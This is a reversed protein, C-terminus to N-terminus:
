PTKSPSNATLKELSAELSFRIFMLIDNSQEEKRARELVQQMTALLPRRGPASCSSRGPPMSHSKLSAARSRRLWCPCHKRPKARTLWRPRPKSGCWQAPTRCTPERLALRADEPLQRAANCGVAAWYRVGDDTDSLLKVQEEGADERGVLNAADLLRALPYRKEDRALEFPTLEDGLRQWMQPETLFGADCTEMLWKRLEARMTELTDRHEGSAALNHVQHPDAATDYLEELARRPSAYTLQDANLRGAAALRKMEQRFTSADSYREPPMWSLHPMFNRIYLWRGDRVSRSLDFVEDVRDRAGYVFRRPEVAAPGLFASGQMHVPIEVGCLSLVSTRFGRLERSPREDGRSGCPALHRWKDPIRVILPVHMGSDHLLRKGRPMGMGHDGYFFVITDDALGDADLQRLFEDVERDM